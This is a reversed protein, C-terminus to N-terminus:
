GAMKSFCWMPDATNPLLSSNEAAVAASGTATGGLATIRETIEDVHGLVGGHIQDYLEHLAIFNPAMRARPQPTLGSRM